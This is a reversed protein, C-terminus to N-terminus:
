EYFDRLLYLNIRDYFITTRWPDSESYACMNNFTRMLMTQKNDKDRYPIKAFTYSEFEEDWNIM